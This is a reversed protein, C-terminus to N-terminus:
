IKVFCNNKERVVLISTNMWSVVVTAEKANSRKKTNTVNLITNRTSNTLSKVKQERQRNKLINKTIWKKGNKARLRNTILM